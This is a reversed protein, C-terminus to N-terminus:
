DAPLAEFPNLFSEDRCTRQLAKGHRVPRPLWQASRNSCIASRAYLEAEGAVSHAAPAAIGDLPRNWGIGNREDNHCLSVRSTGRSAPRPRSPGAMVSMEIARVFRYHSPVGAGAIAAPVALGRRGPPEGGGEPIFFAGCFSRPWLASKLKSSGRKPGVALPRKFWEGKVEAVPRRRAHDGIDGPPRM